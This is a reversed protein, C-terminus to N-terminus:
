MNSRHDNIYDQMQHLSIYYFNLGLPIVKKIMDIYKGTSKYIYKLKDQLSFKLYTAFVKDTSMEVDQHCSYTAALYYLIEEENNGIVISKNIDVLVPIHYGLAQMTIINETTYNIGLFRLYAHVSWSPCQQLLRM